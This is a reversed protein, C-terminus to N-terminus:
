WKGRMGVGFGITHDSAHVRLIPGKKMNAELFLVSVNRVAHSSDLPAYGGVEGIGIFMAPVDRRGEGIGIGARAWGTLGFMSSPALVDARLHVDEAPGLRLYGTPLAWGTRLNWNGSAGNSRVFTAEGGGFGSGIGIDKGEFSVLFSGFGSGGFAGGGVALRMRPAIPTEVAGGATLITKKSAVRSWGGGGSCGGGTWAMQDYDVGYAGAGFVIHLGGSDDPVAAMPANQWALIGILAAIHRPRM